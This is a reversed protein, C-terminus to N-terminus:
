GHNHSFTGFVVQGGHHADPVMHHLVTGGERMLIIQVGLAAAAKKGRLGVAANGLFVARDHPQVDQVGVVYAAAPVDGVCAVGHVGVAAPPVNPLLEDGVAKGLGLAAPKLDHLEVGNHFIVGM